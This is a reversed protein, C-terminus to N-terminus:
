SSFSMHSASTHQVSHFDSNYLNPCETLYHYWSYTYQAKLLSYFSFPSNINVKPSIIKFPLGDVHQKIYIYINLAKWCLIKKANTSFVQRLITMLWIAPAIRKSTLSRMILDQGPYLYLLSEDKCSQGMVGNRQPPIQRYFVLLRVLVVGVSLAKPKKSLLICQNGISMM